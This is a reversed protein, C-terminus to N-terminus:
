EKWINELDLNSKLDIIKNDVILSYGILNQFRSIVKKIKGRETDDLDENFIIILNEIEDDSVSNKNGLFFLFDYSQENYYAAKEDTMRRILFNTVDNEIGISPMSFRYGDVEFSRDKVLYCDKFNSFNFYNFIESTFDVNTPKQSNSDFYSIKIPKNNTFSVIELFIFIIDVSKLDEFKYGRSFEVNKRVFNKIIEIIELVNDAKFNYEYEIIDEIKAKKIKIEFSNRYFFGQTPLKKIDIKKTGNIISSLIDFLAKM